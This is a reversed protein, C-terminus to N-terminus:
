GHGNELLQLRQRSLFYLEVVKRACDFAMAAPAMYNPCTLLWGRLDSRVTEEDLGSGEGGTGFSAILLYVAGDM